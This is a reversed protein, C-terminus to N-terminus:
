ETDVWEAALPGFYPVYSRELSAGDLYARYGLALILLIDFVFLMWSLTSSIFMLIFQVCLLFLFLASSQWAHFRVYDNKTELILLLVGTIPGLAYALAAEVDVRIPLRTEYKNVRVTGGPTGGGISPGHSFLGEEYLPSNDFGSTGNGNNSSGSGGGVATTVSAGSQYSNNQIPDYKGNGGTTSSRSKGKAKRDQKLRSTRDEDPSPKYPSFDM